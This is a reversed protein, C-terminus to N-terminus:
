NLIHITSILFQISSIQLQIKVLSIDGYAAMWCWNNIDLISNKSTSIDNKIDIIVNDSTSIDIRSILLEIPVLLFTLKQYRFM